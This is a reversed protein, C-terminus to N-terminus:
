SFDILKMIDEEYDITGKKVTILKGDVEIVKVDGLSVHDKSTLCDLIDGIIQHSLRFIPLCDSLVRSSENFIKRRPVAEDVNKQMLIGYVPFKELYDSNKFDQVLDENGMYDKLKRKSDVLLDLYTVSSNKLKTRKAAELEQTFENFFRNCISKRRFSELLSSDVPLGLAQIKAVHELIKRMHFGRYASLVNKGDLSVSNVDYHDFIVRMINESVCSYKLIKAFPIRCSRDVADVDAGNKVLIEITIFKHYYYKCAEELPTKGRNNASNVDSGHDILLQVIQFSSDRIANWLPIEGIKDKVDVLAGFNLLLHITRLDAKRILLCQLPTFGYQDQANVDAGNNLMVEIVDFRSDTQNYIAAVHLATLRSCFITKKPDFGYHLLLQASEKNGFKICYFIITLGRPNDRPNNRNLCEVGYKLLLDVTKLNANEILRELVLKGQDDIVNIMSGISLLHEITEYHSDGRNLEAAYQFATKNNTDRTDVESKFVLLRKFEELNNEAAAKHLPSQVIGTIEADAM